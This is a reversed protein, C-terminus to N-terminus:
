FFGDHASFGAPVGTADLFVVWDGRQAQVPLFRTTAADLHRASLESAIAAAQDPRHQMLVGVPRSRALAQAQSQAYPVWYSPRQGIDYGQMSLEISALLEKGDRSKRTGIVRPGLLSLRRFEPLAADLESVRVDSATIVRFRDTEFVLAVPRAGYVTHLGYGLAALQLLAIIGLDRLLERRPKSRNFVVFTLLPGMVVDVSTLLVFLNRGGSMLAYQNPFWVGLVLAASAAAVAASLLLHIGAAKLKNRLVIQM